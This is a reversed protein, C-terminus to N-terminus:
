LLSFSTLMDVLKMGFLAIISIYFPIKDQTNGSFPTSCFKSMDDQNFMNILVYATVFGLTWLISDIFDGIVPIMEIVSIVTGVVPIWPIVFATIDGVAMSITSDIGAKGISDTTITQNCNTYRRALNAFMISLLQIMLSIISFLTESDEDVIVPLIFPVMFKVMIPILMWYDLPNSGKGDAVFGMKMMFMPIFSFPPILLMPFMLWWKDLSGKFYFIRAWLQGLPILSFFITQLLTLKTGGTFFSFINGM